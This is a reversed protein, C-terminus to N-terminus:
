WTHPIHMYIHIHTYPHVYTVLYLFVLACLRPCLPTSVLEIDIFPLLLYPSFFPSSSIFLLFSEVPRWCRASAAAAAVRDSRRRVGSSTSTPAGTPVGMTSRSISRMGM